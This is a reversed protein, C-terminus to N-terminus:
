FRDCFCNRANHTKKQSPPLTADWGVNLRLGGRVLYVTVGYCDGCGTRCSAVRSGRCICRMVFRQVVGVAVVSFVWGICAFLLRASQLFFVLVLVPASGLCTTECKQAANNISLLVQPNAYCRALLRPSQNFGGGGGRIKRPSKHHLILGERM